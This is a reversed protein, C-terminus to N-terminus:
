PRTETGPWTWGQHEVVPTVLSREYATMGKLASAPPKGGFRQFAGIWYHVANHLNGCAWIRNERTDPGGLGLPIIHHSEVTVLRPRHGAVCRCVREASVPARTVYDTPRIVTEPNRRWGESGASYEAREESV